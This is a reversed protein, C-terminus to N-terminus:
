LIFATVGADVAYNAGTIFSGAVPSALLLLTGVLEHPEGYRHFLTQRLIDAERTGQALIQRNQEAPFFGPSMANARIGYKAWEMAVSRTISLVGAKTASYTSVESLPITATVSAINIIAGKTGRKIMYAGFVQCANRVGQLNIAVIRNWEDDGVDLFPKKSNVGPANVLVHCNRGQAELAAVVAEMDRKERVDVKFFEATGGQARIAGVRAAGPEEALDAVVVHAGAMSLGMCMEGGLVGGGGIVVATTGELGFLSDLFTLRKTGEM